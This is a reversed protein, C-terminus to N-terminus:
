RLYWNGFSIILLLQLKDVNKKVLWKIFLKVIETIFLVWSLIPGITDRNFYSPHILLNTTLQLLTPSNTLQHDAPRHIRSRYTAPSSKPSTTTPLRHLVQRHALQQNDTTTPDTSCKDTPRQDTKLRRPTPPLGISPDTTPQQHNIAQQHDTMKYYAVSMWNNLIKMFLEIKSEEYTRSGARSLIKLVAILEKEQKKQWILFLNSLKM